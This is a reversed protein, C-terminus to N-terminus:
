TKRLRPCDRQVHELQQCHFCRKVKRVSWGNQQHSSARRKGYEGQIRADSRGLSETNRLESQRLHDAFVFNQDLVALRDLEGFSTPLKQFVFRSHQAPALGEVINNVVERESVPLRLVVATAKISNIYMAFPEEERQLSEYRERRLKEFLRRPIFSDLMDRHFREFTWGEQLAVVVKSALAEQCHPFMLELLQSDTLM